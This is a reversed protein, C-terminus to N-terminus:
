FGVPVDLTQGDRRVTLTVQRADRLSSLLEAQRQPGDLPIGNVATVVDSRRLGTRTLLDSDRGVSLRVGAMRGNELVPIVNVDRALQAVDFGALTRQTELSPGTASIVPNVFPALGGSDAPRPRVPQSVSPRASGTADAATTRPLSLAEDVGNRSLLVRGAHIAELRAGGPLADGVRYARDVGHEDAIIAIGGDPADESLTGRLTLRLATEPAQAALTRSDGPAANGFLRWQSISATSRGGDAQSGSLEFPAPPPLDAGALLLWFLRVALWLLLTAAAALALRPWWVSQGHVRDFLAASV